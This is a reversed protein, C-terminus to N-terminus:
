LGRGQVFALIMGQAQDSWLPGNKRHGCDLGPLAPNEYSLNLDGSRVVFRAVPMKLKAKGVVSAVICAAQHKLTHVLGRPSAKHSISTSTLRPLHLIDTVRGKTAEGRERRDAKAMGAM